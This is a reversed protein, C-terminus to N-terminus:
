DTRHGVYGGSTKLARQIFRYATQTVGLLSPRTGDGAREQTVTYLEKVRTRWVEYPDWGLQPRALGSLANAMGTREENAAPSVPYVAALGEAGEPKM